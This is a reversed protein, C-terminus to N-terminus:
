TPLAYLARCYLIREPQYLISHMLIYPLAHLVCCPQYLMIIKDTEGSDNKRKKPPIKLSFM